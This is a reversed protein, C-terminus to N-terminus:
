SGSQQPPELRRGLREMQLTPFGHQWAQSAADTGWVSQSQLTRLGRWLGRCLRLRPGRCRLRREGAVAINLTLEDEEPLLTWIEVAPELNWEVRGPLGDIAQGIADVLAALSDAPVASVATRHTQREAEVTIPLWGSRPAGFRIKVGSSDARRIADVRNQELRLDVADDIYGLRLEGGGSLPTWGRALGVEIAQRVIYPTVIFQNTLAVAGSACPVREQHYDFACSLQQGGQVEAMVRLSIGYDTGTASWFYEQGDVTIRRKNKRSFAM